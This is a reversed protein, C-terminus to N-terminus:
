HQQQPRAMVHLLLRSIQAPWSIQSAAARWPGVTLRALCTCSRRGRVEHEAPEDNPPQDRAAPWIADCRTRGLVFLYNKIFVELLELHFYLSINQLSNRKIM